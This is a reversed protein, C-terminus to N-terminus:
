TMWNSTHCRERGLVFVCTVSNSANLSLHSVMYSVLVLTSPAWGVVVVREGLRQIAASEWVVQKRLGPPAMKIRLEISFLRATFGLFVATALRVLWHGLWGCYVSTTWDANGFCRRLVRACLCVQVLHRYVKELTVCLLSLRSPDASHCWEEWTHHWFGQIPKTTHGFYIVFVLSLCFSLPCNLLSTPHHPLLPPPPCRQFWITLM